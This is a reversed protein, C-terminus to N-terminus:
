FPPEHEGAMRRMESEFGQLIRNLFEFWVEIPMEGLPTDAHGVSELYEGGMAGAANRAMAEMGDLQHQAMNYVTRALRICNPDRCTWLWPANHHPAHAIGWAHRRCVGCVAPEHTALRRVTATTM